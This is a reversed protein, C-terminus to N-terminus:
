NVRDYVNEMDLKCLVGSDGKKLIADVCENAVLVGDVSQRGGLFASQNAFIVDKLAEKLRCSHTKSLIKYISGMLSIPKFDSIRCAEKLKPILSIFTVNNGLNLFAKEHFKKSTDMVDM